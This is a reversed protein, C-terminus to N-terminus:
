DLLKGGSTASGGGLYHSPIFQTIANNMNFKKDGEFKGTEPNYEQYIFNGNKDVKFGYTNAGEFGSIFDGKKANNFEQLKNNVSRQDMWITENSYRSKGLNFKGSQSTRPNRKQVFNGTHRDNLVDTNYMSFLKIAQNVNNDDFMWDSNYTGGKEPTFGKYYKPDMGGSSWIDAFSLPGAKEGNKLIFDDDGTMDTELAVQVEEPGMKKLGLSINNQIGTADFRGGKQANQVVAGDLTLFSTNWINNKVNWRGTIDKYKDYIGNTTFGLDGNDEISMSSNNTLINDYKKYDFTRGRAIQKKSNATVYNAAEQNYIDVQNTFNAVSAEILGIEDLINKDKKGGKIYKQMLDVAEQRKKRTFDLAIQKNEGELLVAGTPVKIRDAYKDVLAQSEQEEKKRQEYAYMYASGFASTLGQAFGKGAASQRGAESRSVDGQGLILATDPGYSLGKKAM